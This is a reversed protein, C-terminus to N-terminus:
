KVNKVDTEIQAKLEEISNFKKEERVFSILEVSITKGYIDDDFQLIHVELMPKNDGYTPKVGINCIARLRQGGINVACSYVGFKPLIYGDLSINATPFGLKRGDQRGKQVVGEIEFKGDLLEEVENVKGAAILKRIETSSYRKGAKDNIKAVATYGFGYKKSLEKLLGAKGQAKYGFSFDEGTFVHSVKMKDVLINKVFDEASIQSFAENFEAYAVFDLGIYDLIDTKQKFSTIQFQTDKLFYEIPSPNFTLVGAPKKLLNARDMVMNIIAAHGKHVGDFNGIAIVAGKIGSEIGTGNSIKIIEM